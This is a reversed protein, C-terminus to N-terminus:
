SWGFRGEGQRLSRYVQDANEADVRLAHFRRTM